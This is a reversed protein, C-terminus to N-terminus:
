LTKLKKLEEITVSPPMEGKKIKSVVLDAVSQAAEKTKFGENGPMGPITPQHIMLKSEVLIDYGWTNNYTSIIKSTITKNKFAEPSSLSAQEQRQPQVKIKKEAFNDHTESQCFILGTQFLFILFLFICNKIRSTSTESDLIRFETKQKNM